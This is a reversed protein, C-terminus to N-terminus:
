ELNLPQPLFSGAPLSGQRLGGLVFISLVCIPPRGDQSYTGQSLTRQAPVQEM